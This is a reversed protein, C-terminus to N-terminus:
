EFAGRGRGGGRDGGFGGRDGGFGGRGGGRQVGGGRASFGGRGGGGGGRDGGFGGRGGGTSISTVNLSSLLHLPLSQPTGLKLSDNPTTPLFFSHDNRQRRPQFNFFLHRPALNHPPSYASLSLSLSLSFTDTLRSM